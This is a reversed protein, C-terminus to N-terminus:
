ASPVMDQELLELVRRPVSFSWGSTATYIEEGQLLQPPQGGRQTDWLHRLQEKAAHIFREQIATRGVTYVVDWPGYWFPFLPTKPAITGAEGDTILQSGTWAPGGPWVSTVSTVALIPRRPLVIQWGGDTVRDTFDRRVCFGVKSEVLETCAMLFNGLEDDDTPRTKGLHAKAETISLISIFDRVSVYDPYPATGPGTTTWAFKFLGTSPLLYDYTIVWDAGVQSGAGPSPAPSVLTGDPKTIALAASAPAGTQNRLTCTSRYVQGACLM